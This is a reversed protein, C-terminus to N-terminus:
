KQKRQEIENTIFMIVQEICPLVYNKKITGSAHEYAEEEVPEFVRHGDERLQKVNRQVAPQKWMAKNMNPFFLCPNPHALITTQLLNGGIGQAACALTNASAPLIIFIDAWSGLEVHSVYSGTSQLHHCYSEPCILSFTNTPIFESATPSLIVRCNAFVKKLAVLYTPLSLVAISGSIGILLNCPSSNM